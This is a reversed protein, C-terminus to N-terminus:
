QRLELRGSLTVQYGTLFTQFGTQPCTRGRGPMETKEKRLMLSLFNWNMPPGNNSYEPPQTKLTVRMGTLVTTHICVEFVLSVWESAVTRVM